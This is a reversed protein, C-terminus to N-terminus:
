VDNTPGSIIMDKRSLVTKSLLKTMDMNDMKVM